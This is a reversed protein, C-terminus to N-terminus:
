DSVPWNEGILLEFVQPPRAHSYCFPLMRDTGASRRVVLMSHPTDSFSEGAYNPPSNSSPFTKWLRPFPVGNVNQKCALEQDLSPLYACLDGTLPFTGVCEDQTMISSDTCRSMAGSFFQVGMSRLRVLYPPLEGHMYLLCSEVVCVAFTYLFLFVVVFINQARPFSAFM